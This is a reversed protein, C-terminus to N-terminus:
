KYRLKENAIRIITEKLGPPPTMPKRKANDLDNGVEVVGHVKLHERHKSRSTIMTGDCMSKYPQIDPIVFFGADAPRQYEEAPILNGERDQIWRKRV